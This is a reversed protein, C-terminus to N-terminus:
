TLNTKDNNRGKKFNSSHKPGLGTIKNSLNTQMHCVVMCFYSMNGKVTWIEFFLIFYIKKRM